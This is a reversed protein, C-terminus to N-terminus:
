TLCGPCDKQHLVEIVDFGKIYVHWIDPGRCETSVLVHTDTLVSPNDDEEHFETILTDPSYEKDKKRYYLYLCILLGLGILLTDLFYALNFGVPM